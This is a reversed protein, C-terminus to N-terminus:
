SARPRNRTHRRRRGESKIIEQTHARAETAPLDPSERPRMNASARRLQGPEVCALTIWRGATSIGVGYADAIAQRPAPHRAETLARHFEAVYQLHEESLPPRGRKRPKATDYIAPRPITGGVRAINLRAAERAQERDADSQEVARQEARSQFDDAATTALSNVAVQVALGRQAQKILTALPVQRLLAYFSESPPEAARTPDAFDPAWAIGVAVCHMQGAREGFTLSIAWPGRDADPWWLSVTTDPTSRLREAAADGSPESVEDPM